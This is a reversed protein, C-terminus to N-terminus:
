YFLDLVKLVGKSDYGFNFKRIDPKPTIKYVEDVLNSLEKIKGSINSKSNNVFDTWLKKYSPYENINKLITELEPPHKIGSNKLYPYFESYIKDWLSEFSKTDLKELVVASLVEGSKDKVKTKSYVKPFIKENSKFTNYWKDVEGPRLEAKVIKDPQSAMSFVRHDKGGGIVPKIKINPSKSAGKLTIIFEEKSMGEYLYDALKSNYNYVGYKKIYNTKYLNVENVISKLRPALSKLEAQIQPSYYIIAEAVEKEAKTLNKGGNLIKDSLVKMGRQGLKKVGPIKSVLSGLMPLSSLVAVLTADGKKGEAWYSNAELFGIATSLYPGIVPILATGIQLITAVQHGTLPPGYVSTKYKQIDAPKSPNLGLEKMNRQEIGFRRDMVSEPQELLCSVYQKETIIIKM